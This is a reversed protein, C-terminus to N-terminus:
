PEEPVTAGVRSAAPNGHSVDRRRSPPRRSSTGRRRREAPMGERVQEGKEKLMSELERSMMELAWQFRQRQEPTLREYMRHLAAFDSEGFTRRVVERSAFSDEPPDYGAACRVEALPVSLAKAIADVVEIMPRLKEGIGTPDVERELHSIYTTTVGVRGALEGQTLGAAERWRVLRQGFTGSM